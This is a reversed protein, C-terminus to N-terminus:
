RLRGEEAHVPLAVRFAAGGSPRNEVWARGGHLQALRAVLSLGMGLGTRSSGPTQTLREFIVGRLAEPVGAGSDDVCILVDGDQRLVSIGLPTGEPTHRCANLVLNEIIREVAAADVDAIVPEVKLDIPRDGLADRHEEVMRRVIEAVDTRQRQLSVEGASLRDLDLLDDLLRRMKDASAMLRTLYGLRQESTISPIEADRQLVTTAARIAALPGRLDHSVADLLTNKFRDLESLRAAAERELGLARELEAQMRQRDSVDRIIATFYPAGDAEWTALSLEVPMESGDQRRANVLATKGILRGEGTALYRALGTRHAHHFREPIIDTVPAGVLGSEAYGFFRAGETNVYTITGAADASVISDSATDAVARFREESRRLLTEALKQEMLSSLQAAAADVLDRLGSGPPPQEQTLFELVAIVGRKSSVPVALAAILGLEAAADTRRFAAVDVDIDEAWQAEGRQWVSGLLPEGPHFDLAVSAARFREFGPERQYWVPGCILKDGSPNPLWVQALVWDGAESFLRLTAAFAEDVSAAASIAVALDHLLKLRRYAEALGDPETM